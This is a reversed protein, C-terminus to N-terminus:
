GGSSLEGLPETPPPPTSPASPAVTATPPGGPRGALRRRLRDAGFGVALLLVGEILLGTESSSSLYTFNFDSLAAILGIGAAFLFASSERRFAREVLLGALGLLLVEMIWPPVVRGYDGNALLDSRTLASALGVVAVTGAWARTLSARRGPAGPAWVSDRRAESEHIALVGLGLALLLWVSATVFILLIPDPTAGIPVGKDTYNDPRVVDNLWGLLAAAFATTSVLLGFQTLLSAHIFRFASAIAVALLALLVLAAPGSVNISGLIGAVGGVAYVTAALFAIGAARQRRANGGRLLLGLGGLVVAAVLYGGGTAALSGDAALKSVFATWAGLVFGGGLYAFMEAVAPGPGLIDTASVSGRSRRDGDGEDHPLGADARREGERARLRAATTPDLLGAQQWEDIRALVPDM